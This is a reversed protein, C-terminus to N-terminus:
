GILAAAWHSMLWACLGIGTAAGLAGATLVFFLHNFLEDRVDLMADHNSIM